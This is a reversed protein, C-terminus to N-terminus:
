ARARFYSLTGYVTSEFGTEEADLFGAERMLEPLRGRYNAETVELGDFRRILPFAIRAYRTRPKGFDAIHLEGGPTLLRRAATLARLKDDTTLHHLVLMSVVREFSGSAFPPEVASGRVLTLEVGAKDIKRKAIALIEPDIDLGIVAANPQLQKILLSFTATGCGLELVRHGPQINAQDVLRRRLRAERLTVRIAFDYFRTLTKSALAPVFSASRLQSM